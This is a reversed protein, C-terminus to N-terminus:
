ETLQRHSLAHRGTSGRNSTKLNATPDAQLSVLKDNAAQAYLKKTAHIFSRMAGHGGRSSKRSQANQKVELALAAVESAAPQDLRLDGWKDILVNWYIQYTAASVTKMTAAVVPVYDRITPVNSPAEVALEALSIGLNDLLVRAAALPESPSTKTALTM